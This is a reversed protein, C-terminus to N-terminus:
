TPSQNYMEVHITGDDDVSEIQISPVDKFQHLGAKSGNRSSTVPVPSYTDSAMAGQRASIEYANQRRRKFYLFAVILVSIVAVAVIFAVSTYYYRATDESVDPVTPSLARNVDIDSTINLRSTLNVQGNYEIDSTSTNQGADMTRSGHGDEGAAAQDLAPTPSIVGYNVDSTTWSPSISNHVNISKHESGFTYSSVFSASLISGFEKYDLSNVSYKGKSFKEDSSLKENSLVSSQKFVGEDSPKELKSRHDINLELQKISIFTDQNLFTSYTPSPCLGECQVATNKTSAPIIIENVPGSVHNNERGSRTPISISKQRDFTQLTNPFERVSSPSIQDLATNTVRPVARAGPLRTGRIVESLSPSLDDVDSYLSSSVDWVFEFSQVDLSSLQGSNPCDIESSFFSQLAIKEKEIQHFCDGIVQVTRFIYRLNWLLCSCQIPNHEVNLSRLTPISYPMSKDIEQIANDAVNLKVLVNTHKFMEAPLDYLVNSSLDLYNIKAITGFLSVDLRGIKNNHLHLTRLNFLTLQDGAEISYLNNDNLYFRKISSQNNFINLNIFKLNNNSLDITEITKGIDHFTRESLSRINNLSLDLVSISSLNYFDHREVGTLETNKLSLHKIGWLDQFWRSPIHSVHSGTLDLTELALQGEFLGSPLDIAGHINLTRLGHLSQFARRHYSKIGVLTVTKLNRNLHSSNFFTLPISNMNTFELCVESLYALSHLLDESLKEVLQSSVRLKTLTSSLGEFMKAPIIEATRIDLALEKIIMGKFWSPHLTAQHIVLEFKSLRRLKSFANEDIQRAELGYLEVSVEMGVLDGQTILDLINGSMNLSKTIFCRKMENAPIKTLHNEALNVIELYRYTCLKQLAEPSLKNQSLDLIATNRPVSPMETLKPVSNSCDVKTKILGFFHKQECTCTPAQFSDCTSDTSKFVLTFVYVYLFINPAKIKFAM